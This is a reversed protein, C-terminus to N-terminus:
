AEADTRRRCGCGGLGWRDEGSMWLAAATMLLYLFINAVTGHNKLLIQGFALSLLTLGNLLLVCTRCVGLLLLLGLLAEVPPLAYGYGATLWSPLFTQEFAPQLYGNVFGGLNMLKSVGSTLMLLGLSWRILAPAAPRPDLCCSSHM